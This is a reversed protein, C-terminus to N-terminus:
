PKRASYTYANAHVTIPWPRYTVPGAHITLDLEGPAVDLLLVLSATTTATAALNNTDYIATAGPPPDVTAGVLGGEGQDHTNGCDSVVVVVTGKTPDPPKNVLSYYSNLLAQSQVNYGDVLTPDFTASWDDVYIELDSPKYTRYIQPAVGGTAIRVGYSGADLAGDSTTAQGLLADTHGDRIEVAVSGVTIGSQAVLAGSVLLPDPATTPWPTTVCSFDGPIM